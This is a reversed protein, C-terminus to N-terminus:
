SQIDGVLSQVFELGVAAEERYIVRYLSDNAIGDCELIEPLNKSLYKDTKYIWLYTYGGQTLLAPLDNVTLSCNELRVNSGTQTFKWPVALYNSVQSDLYYLAPANVLEAGSLNDSSYQYIFYVKDNEGLLPKIQAIENVTSSIKTYGTINEKSVATANPIFKANLGLAFFLLIGLSIYEQVKARKVCDNKLLLTLTIVFLYISCISFYRNASRLVVSLEYAFMFLYSFFLATSFCLVIFVTYAIYVNSERKNERLDGSIKILILIILVFPVFAMGINSRSAMPLGFIKTVFVGFTKYAKEQSLQVTNVINSLNDPLKVGVVTWQETEAPPQVEIAEAQEAVAETEYPQISCVLGFLVGSCIIVLVCSGVVSCKFIRMYNEKYLNGKEILFVHLFIFIFVFLAMLLGASQKFFHLMIMGSLAVLVDAKKKRRNMWWGVLGGAWAATPVDVYLSKPGYSYLTFLSIYIIIVYVAVKKGDKKDYESFPLMFGLWALLSSSVYMNQENYGTVKQFFLHFLSTAFGYQGGGGIFDYGTPLKDKELMYKVAAAWEHFEDIHQIYDHYLFVLWGIYLFLIFIFVPSYFLSVVSEKGRIIRICWLVGGFVAVAIIGYFGWIFTGLKSSLFFFFVILSASLMMGEGINVHLTNYFFLVVGCIILFALMMWLFNM